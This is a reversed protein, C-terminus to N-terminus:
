ITFNLDYHRIQANPACQPYRLTCVASAEILSRVRASANM